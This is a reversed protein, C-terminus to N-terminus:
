IKVKKVLLRLMSNNINNAGYYSVFLILAIILELSITAECKYFFLELALKM